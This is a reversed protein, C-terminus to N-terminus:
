RRRAMRMAARLRAAGQLGKLPDKPPKPASAGAGAGSEAPKQGRGQGLAQQVNSRSSVIDQVGDFRGSETDYQGAAYPNRQSGLAGRSAASTVDVVGDDSSPYDVPAQYRTESQVSTSTEKSTSFQITQVSPVIPSVMNAANSASYASAVQPTVPGLSLNLGLGLGLGLAPTSAPLSPASPPPPPIQTIGSAATVAHTPLSSVTTSSPRSAFSQGFRLKTAPAAPTPTHVPVHDVAYPEDLPPPPPPAFPNVPATAAITTAAVSGNGNTDETGFLSEVTHTGGQGTYTPASFSYGASDVDYVTTGSGITITPAKRTRKPRPHVFDNDDEGAYEDEDESYIVGDAGGSLESDGDGGDSEEEDSVDRYEVGEGLLDRLEDEAEQRHSRGTGKGPPVLAEDEDSESWDSEEDSEFSRKRRKKSEGQSKQKEKKDKAPVVAFRRNVKSPRPGLKPPVQLGKDLLYANSDQVRMRLMFGAEQSVVSPITNFTPNTVTARNGTPAVQSIRPSMPEEEKDFLDDDVNSLVPAVGPLTGNLGFDIVVKREPEIVPLTFKKNSSGPGSPPATPPPFPPMGASSPAAAGSRKLKLVPGSPKVLDDIKEPVIQADGPLKRKSGATEAALKKTFIKSPLMGPVIASTSADSSARPASPATPTSTAEPKAAGFKGRRSVVPIDDEDDDEYDGDGSSQKTDATDQMTPANTSAAAVPDEGEIVHDDEDADSFDEMWDEDDEKKRLKSRKSGAKTLMRVTRVADENSAKDHMNRRPSSDTNLASESNSPTIGSKVLQENRLQVSYQATHEIPAEEHFSPM